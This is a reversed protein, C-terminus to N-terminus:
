ELQCHWSQFLNAFHSYNLSMKLLITIKETRAGWFSLGTWERLFAPSLVIRSRSVSLKIITSHKAIQAPLTSSCRVARLNKLAKVCKIEAAFPYTQWALTRVSLSLGHCNRHIVVAHLSIIRARKRPLGLGLQEDANQLAHVNLIRLMNSFDFVNSNWLMKFMM